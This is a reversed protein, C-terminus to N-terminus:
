EDGEKAPTLREVRRRLMVVVGAFLILVPLLFSAAAIRNRQSTSMRLAEELATTNPISLVDQESGVVENLCDVFQDRNAMSSDGTLLSDHFFLTAAFVYMTGTNGEFSDEIKLLLPFKGTEDGPEKVYGANSAKRFTKETTEALATIKTTNRRVGDTYIPVARAWEVSKGEYDCLIYSANDGVTHSEDGECLIGGEYRVGYLGLLSQLNTFSNSDMVLSLFVTGGKTMYEEVAKVEEETFDSMPSGIFLIDCAEPVKGEKTLDCYELEFANLKMLDSVTETVKGPNTEDCRTIYESHNTTMYITARKEQTVEVIAKAIEVEADYGRLELSYTQTNPLYIKMQESDIYAFRDPDDANEVIISNNTIYCIRM